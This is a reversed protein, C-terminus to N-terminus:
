EVRVVHVDSIGIFTLISRLYFEQFDLKQMPGESYIGGRSVVLVAKKGKLLGQPGKKPIPLRAASAFSTISGRRSRRPCASITCAAAGQQNAPLRIPTQAAAIFKEVTYHM